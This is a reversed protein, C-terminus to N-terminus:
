GRDNRPGLTRVRAGNFVEAKAPEPKWERRDEWEQEEYVDKGDGLGGVVIVRTEGVGMEGWGSHM